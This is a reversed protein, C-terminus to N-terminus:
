RLAEIKAITDAYRSGYKDRVVKSKEIFPAKDPYTVVMGKSKLTEIAERNMEETVKRLYVNAEAMCDMFIKQDEPPISAWTAPSMVIFCSAFAHETIAMNKNVEVVNNKDIITTANEQGDIAGQQMATYAEGWSMPVADAGFARWLDQHIQNEMVRIRLGKVDDVTNVDRKSNTLNRFGSEWIAIGKIGVGDLKALFGQGIEGLFIKDAHDYDQIVYPLDVASIEQVFNGLVSQNVVAIDLNGLQIGEVNDREAGLQANHFTNIVVRGGTREKVLAAFHDMSQGIAGDAASVQSMRLEQAARAYGAVAIMAVAVILAAKKMAQM